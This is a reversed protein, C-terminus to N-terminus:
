KNQMNQVVQSELVQIYRIKDAKEFNLAKVLTEINSLSNQQSLNIELTKNERSLYNINRQYKQILYIEKTMLNVQFIYFILLVSLLIFGLIWIVKLNLKLSLQKILIPPNLILTNM